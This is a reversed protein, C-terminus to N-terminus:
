KGSRPEKAPGPGATAGQAGTDVTPDRRAAMWKRFEVAGVKGTARFLMAEELDKLILAKAAPTFESTRLAFSAFRAPDMDTKSKGENFTKSMM